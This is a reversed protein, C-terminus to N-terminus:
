VPLFLELCVGLWTKFFDLFRAVGLWAIFMGQPPVIRIMPRAEYSIVRAKGEPNSDQYRKAMLKLIAIRIQSAATLRNGISISALAPPRTDVGKTFFYGFKSRVEQSHAACEMRVNYRIEADQGRGSINQVVVIPLEKGLLIKIVGQVDAKAKDQWERGLLGPPLKRLGSIVFFVENRVNEQFCALESDVATKMELDRVLLRQGQEVAVMRDELARTSEASHCIKASTDTKSLEMLAKASDFLHILYELGAYPTLHVGDNEYVPNPFSPMLFLNKYRSRDQSMVSSFKQLVESLGERFWVPRSRFMPPCVLFQKGPLRECADVIKNRFSSITPEVRVGVSSSGTTDVLFNTLCTLIVADSADDVQLLAESLMSLKPCSSIQADGLEPCSRINVNTVFRRVNSDGIISFIM